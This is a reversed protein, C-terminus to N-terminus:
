RHPQERTVIVPCEAERLVGKSTSGLLLGLFGGRGRSGVVLLSAERSAEALANAARGPPIRVEVSVEPHERVYPEILDGVMTRFYASAEGVDVSWLGLGSTFVAGVDEFAHLAILRRTTRAAEDVAVRVAALASESDDVGVVVPGEPTPQGLDTVVAVPGVAHSTVADATGGLAKVALPASHGRAGVVVLAATRSAEALVQSAVGDVVLADVELSPHRGLVRERVGTIREDARHRLDALYDGTRMAAFVHSKKPIPLESIVLVVTLPQARAAARDAAWTVAQDARHSLDTGVVIRGAPDFPIM